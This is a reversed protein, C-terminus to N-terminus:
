GNEEWVVPFYVNKYEIKTKLKLKTTTIKFQAYIFYLNQWETETGDRYCVFWVWFLVM